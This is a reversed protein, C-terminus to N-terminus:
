LIKTIQALANEPTIEVTETEKQSVNDEITITVVRGIMAELFDPDFPGTSELEIQADKVKGRKVFVHSVIMKCKMSKFPTKKVTM